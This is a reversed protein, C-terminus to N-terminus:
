FTRAGAARLREVTAPLIASACLWSSSHGPRAKRFVERRHFRFRGTGATRHACRGPLMAVHVSEEAVTERHTLSLALSIATFRSRTRSAQFRLAWIISSLRMRPPWSGSAAAPNRKSFIRWCNSSGREKPRSERRVPREIGTLRHASARCSVFRRNSGNPVPITPKTSSSSTPSRWSAPRSRRCTTAWAPCWCSSRSRRGPRRSSRTRGSASRRSSVDRRPRGCRAAAGTPPPARGARRHARAHGHLPHLRRSRCPAGAHPHSRRPHRRRSVPQHSRRRPDGVTKGQRACSRRSRTSLRARARARRDPSASSARTGTFRRSAGCCNLAERSATRSRRPPAPWRARTDGALHPRKRRTADDAREAAPARDGAAPDRQHRRRHHLAERRSLVEGGPLGQHLRLRRSDARAEDAIRVAAESAFLKAM